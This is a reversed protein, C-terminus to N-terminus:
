FIYNSLLNHSYKFHIPITNLYKSDEMDPLSPSNYCCPCLSYMRGTTKSGTSYTILGFGDLPCVAGSYEIINGNQPLSFAEQCNNCYLRVPKTEILTMFRNCKGCRTFPRGDTQSIKSFTAGFLEDMFNIKETFFKYKAFFQGLAHTVVTKYDAHGKAILSINQEINARVTPLVLEPDIRYYGHVLSIGLRTPTIKRSTQDVQCFNRTCINNIHVPISADTGIGNHEM